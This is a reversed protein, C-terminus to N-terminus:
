LTRQLVVNVNEFTTPGCSTTVIDPLGTVNKLTFVDLMGWTCGRFKLSEGNKFKLGM